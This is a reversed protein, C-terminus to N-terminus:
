DWFHFVLHLFFFTDLLAVIDCIIVVMVGLEQPPFCFQVQPWSQTEYLQFGLASGDGGM